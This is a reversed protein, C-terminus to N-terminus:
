ASAAPTAGSAVPYLKIFRTADDPNCVSEGSEM